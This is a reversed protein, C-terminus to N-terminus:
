YVCLFIIIKFYLLLLIIIIIKIFVCFFINRCIRVIQM